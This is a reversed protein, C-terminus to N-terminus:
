FPIKDDANSAVPLPEAQSAPVFGDERENPDLRGWNFSGGVRGLVAVQYLHYKTRGDKATKEGGYGVKLREGYKPALEILKDRITKRFAHIAVETGDDTRIHAIPYDAYAGGTFMEVHFLEGEVPNEHYGDAKPDDPRWAVSQPFETM